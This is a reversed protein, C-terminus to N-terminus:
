NLVPVVKGNEYAAIFVFSFVSLIYISNFVVTYIQM